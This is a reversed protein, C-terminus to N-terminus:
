LENYKKNKGKAKEVPYKRDNIEIKKILEAELDINYKQSFRLLLFFVDSVEECIEMRKQTNDFYKEIEEDSKFRFIDLLESSETTIGIALDGTGDRGM